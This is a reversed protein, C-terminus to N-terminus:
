KVEKEKTFEQEILKNVVDEIIPVSKELLETLPKTLGKALRSAHVTMNGTFTIGFLDKM